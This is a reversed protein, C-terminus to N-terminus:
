RRSRRRPSRGGGSPDGRACRDPSRAPRAHDAAGRREYLAAGLGDRRAAEGLTTVPQGPVVWRSSVPSVRARFLVDAAASAFGLPVEAVRQGHVGAVEDLDLWDETAVNFPGPHDATIMRHFADALDDQHVFQFGGAFGRPMVTAPSTFQKVGENSFDPGVIFGPRLRTITLGSDPHRREWWEVFHEVEAKDYFYYKGPNGRPFTEETVPKPLDAHGGYASDSSAIVLREVGASHAATLVNRSGNINVDHIRAKDPIEEVIFALHVVAECGAFLEAMRESRVDEREFRLKSHDIRPERLDIGVVEEVGQDEFLRPLIATAFDSAAGTVAVRM